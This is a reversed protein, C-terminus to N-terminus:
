AVAAREHPPRRNIATARRLVALAEAEEGTLGPREAVNGTDRIEFGTREALAERSVGPSLQSLVLGDSSPVFTALPSIVAVLADPRLGAAARMEPDGVVSIRTCAEVLFRPDHKPVMIYFRRAFATLSPLGASGPGRLKWGGAEDPIGVLNANGGRDVQLGGAFVVPARLGDDFAKAQWFTSGRVGILVNDYSRRGVTLLDMSPDIQAMGSAWFRLRPAWLRRALFAALALDIQNTGVFVPQDGTMERALTVIFLDELRQADILM